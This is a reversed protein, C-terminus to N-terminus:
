CCLKSNLFTDGSVYQNMFSPNFREDVDSFSTTDVQGWGNKCIEKVSRKVAGM